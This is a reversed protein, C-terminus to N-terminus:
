ETDRPGTAEGAVDLGVRKERAKEHNFSSPLLPQGTHDTVDLKSNPATHGRTPLDM